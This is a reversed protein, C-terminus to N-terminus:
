RCLVLRIAPYGSTHSLVYVGPELRLETWEFSAQNESNVVKDPAGLLWFRGDVCHLRWGDSPIPGVAHLTNGSFWAHPARYSPDENHALGSLNLVTSTPSVLSINKCRQTTKRFEWGDFVPTPSKLWLYSYSSSNSTSDIYQHGNFWGTLVSSADNEGRSCVTQWLSDGPARGEWTHPLYAVNGTPYQALWTGALQAGLRVPQGVTGHVTDLLVELQAPGYCSYETQISATQGNVNATITAKGADWAPGKTFRVTMQTATTVYSTPTFGPQNAIEFQGSSVTWLIQAGNAGSVTYSCTGGFSAGATCGTLSLQASLSDCFAFATAFFILLNTRM